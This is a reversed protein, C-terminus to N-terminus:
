RRVSQRGLVIHLWLLLPLTVGIVWHALSWLPRSTESAFYYLGYGTVALWVLLSIMSWGSWRNHGARHARRMHQLLLSGILFSVPVLLAGHVQMSWHELPHISEGFEGPQRLFFHALLWALGSLMLAAVLAYLSRRHWQELRFQQGTKPLPRRHLSHKHTHM